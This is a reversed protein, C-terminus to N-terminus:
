RRDALARRLGDFLLDHEAEVYRGAAELEAISLAKVLAALEPMRERFAQAAAACNDFQFGYGARGATDEAFAAAYFRQSELEALAHEIRQRRPAPLEDRPAGKGVIRSLADFDFAGQHPGGLSQKLSQPREAKWDIVSKSDSQALALNEAGTLSPVLTFHQYVMGLGLGRCRAPTSAQERGDVLIEGADARYFGMLLKVLTSKGAGNEGLLAHFSGASVKISVDDLATFGGFRMTM